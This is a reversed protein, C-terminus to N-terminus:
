TSQSDHHVNLRTSSTWFDQIVQQISLEPDLRLPDQSHIVQNGSTKSNEIHQSLGHQCFDSICCLRDTEVVHAVGSQAEWTAQEVCNDRVELWWQPVYAVSPTDGLSELVITIAEIESLGHGQELLENVSDLLRISSSSSRIAFLGIASQTSGQEFSFAVLENPVLPLFKKLSRPSHSFLIEHDKLFFIWELGQDARHQVQFEIYERLQWTLSRQQHSGLIEVVSPCALLLNTTMVTQNISQTVWDKQCQGRM